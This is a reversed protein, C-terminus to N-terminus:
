MILDDVDLLVHDGPRTEGRLIRGAIGDEVARQLMRRMPRAGLRPDNGQEVIKTIAAPTLEVSINQNALTKNISGMMLWVVQALEDPKLPRFLVIEDFRNLLEPKFQGSNILQDTFEREFSELEQGQEIRQRISDAGANSTAIIICDRFSAPRGASDTLEGEDLLQLLLNLINPHAKEIEDLLLVSFPQKRVSLILSNTEQQGNSLLRQVDDPQQYESMDLRIMNSENDFYTAAIAKALETKGVGTPGLFLFSGIPRKPNSVGARSRRLASAVVKVARTQNIMREHISDELHLLADAEVATAGAVKVGRTQEVSRQVSVATILKVRGNGEGHTVSQELLTIAKGPYAIEQEYRGSLRYAERLAEYSIMVGRRIELGSATDELIDMVEHEPREALVVPSLLNAFAPNKTRLRQYDGPSMALIMRVAGSQMVPLLIQTMDFSGPGDGFFLQADDLFLIIHGAHVAENLLTLIIQELEGSHTASSIIVSPNLAVIQNYALAPVVKGELLLQALAHIHSTKGIGDPGILAVGGSGQSFSHQLAAVGPSATLAGFTAGSHEIDFSLNHGFRNLVPTFGNSWDRGIGGFFPKELRSAELIRNLWTMVQNVDDPGIRLQAFAPQLGPNTMMIATIIHGPEVTPSMATDAIQVAKQWAVAMDQPDTSLAPEVVARSLLLHNMIFICHWHNRLVKWVHEPSLTAGPKPQSLVDRSLRGELRGIGTMDIPLTVIDHKYWMAFMFLALGLAIALYALRSYGPAAIAIGVAIVVLGAAGSFLITYFGAGLRKAFRAKRARLSQLNPGDTNM